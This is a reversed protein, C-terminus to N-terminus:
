AALDNAGKLKAIEENAKGNAVILQRNYESLAEARKKHERLERLEDMIRNDGPTGTLEMSSDEMIAQENDDEDIIIKAWADEDVRSNEERRRLEAQNKGIKTNNFKKKERRKPSHNGQTVLGEQRKMSKEQNVGDAFIAIKPLRSSRLLLNRPPLPSQLQSTMQIDTM